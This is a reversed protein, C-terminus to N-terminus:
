IHILSLDVLRAFSDKSDDELFRSIEAPTPPLGTLDFTARRILTQRDAVPVPTLQRKELQQLVFNDIPTWSWNKKRPVPLPPKKVPQFSWFDQAQMPGMRSVPVDAATLRPDIAGQQIWKELDAIEDPRLKKEGPPMKLDPDDQRVAAILRSNEPDGPVIVPGGDGGKRWADHTDLRLGSEQKKM